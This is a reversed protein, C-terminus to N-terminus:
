KELKIDKFHDKCVPKDNFFRLRKGEEVEGCLHFTHVEKVVKAKKPM